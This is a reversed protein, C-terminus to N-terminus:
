KSSEQMAADIRALLDLAYYGCQDVPSHGDGFGHTEVPSGCCCVGTEVDANRIMAAAQALLDKLSSNEAILELIAAPNAAAIFRVNEPQHSDAVARWTEVYTTEDEVRAPCIYSGDYSWPGPTAAGALKKLEDYKSKM